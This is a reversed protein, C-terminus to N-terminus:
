GSRTLFMEYNRSEVQRLITLKPQTPITCVIQANKTHIVTRGTACVVTQSPSNASTVVSYLPLDRLLFKLGPACDPPRPGPPQILPEPLFRCPKEGRSKEPYPFLPPL